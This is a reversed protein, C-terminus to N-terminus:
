VLKFTAPPCFTVNLNGGEAPRFVEENWAGLLHYYTGPTGVEPLVNDSSTSVLSVGTVHFGPLLVGDAEEGDGDIELWKQTGDAPESGVTALEIDAVAENGEGGAVQGGQLYWKAPTGAQYVTRFAGGLARAGGPRGETATAGPRLRYFTKGASEYREFQNPDLVVGGQALFERVLEWSEKTLFGISGRTPRVARLRDDDKKGM